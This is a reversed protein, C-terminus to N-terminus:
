AGMGAFASQLVVSVLTLYAAVVCAGLAVYSLILAACGRGTGFDYASGIRRSVWLLLGISLTLQLLWAIVILDSSVLPLVVVIMAILFSVVPVVFTYFLTMKRILRPLTGDGGLLMLAVIHVSVYHLLLGILSFTATLVCALLLLPLGLTQIQALLAQTEGTPDANVAAFQQFLANFSAVYLITSLVAFGLNVLWYIGLDVFASGWTPDDDASARKGKNGRKAKRGGGEEIVYAVAQATPLGTIEAALGTTYGDRRLAPDKLFAQALYRIARQDDGRLNMDLAQQVLGRARERDAASVVREAEVEDAADADAADADADDDDPYLRNQSGDNDDDEDYAYVMGSRKRPAADDQAPSANRSIYVGAKRALERVQEDSDSRYINALHSLAARNRSQALQTIAKKRQEPDPSNLLRLLRDDIM